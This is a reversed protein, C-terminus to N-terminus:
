RQGVAGEFGERAYHQQLPASALHEGEAGRGVVGQGNTVPGAVQPIGARGQHAQGGLAGGYIRQSNDGAQAQPGQHINRIHRRLNSLQNARYNCHACNYPREGTHVIVHREYLQHRGPGIFTKPCNPCALIVPTRASAGGQAGAGEQHPAAARGQLLCPPELEQECAGSEPALCCLRAVKRRSSASRM